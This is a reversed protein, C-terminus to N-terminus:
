SPEVTFEPLEGKASKEEIAKIEPNLVDLEWDIDSLRIGLRREARRVATLKRRARTLEDDSAV